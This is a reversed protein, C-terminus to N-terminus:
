YVGEHHGINVSASVTMLMFPIYLLPLPLHNLRLHLNVIINSPSKTHPSLTAIPLTRVVKGTGVDIGMEYTDCASVIRGM